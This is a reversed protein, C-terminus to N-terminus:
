RALVHKVFERILSENKKQKKNKAVPKMAQLTSWAADGDIGAPVYKLFSAKDGTEIFERMKTGSINVTSTRTVPRRSVLGTSYLNPAYKELHADDFRGADDADSYIRYQDDSNKESAKGLEAYANAVPSGGYTVQVNDPLIKEIQDRWIKAMARGSVVGRDSTSVYLKVIDNEGAALTVLMHHGVHYPKGSLPIMGIKAM